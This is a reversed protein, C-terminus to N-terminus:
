QHRGLMDIKTARQRPVLEERKQREKVSGHKQASVKVSYRFDLDKRETRELQQMLSGIILLLEDPSCVKLPKGSFHAKRAEEIRQRGWISTIDIM